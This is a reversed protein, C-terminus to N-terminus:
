FQAQAALSEANFKNPSPLNTYDPPTNYPADGWPGGSTVYENKLLDYVVDNSFVTGPLDPRDLTFLQETKWLQGHSDYEDALTADWTDEDVYFVRKAIVNREGPHLTAEVVWVRHLEWRVLNPNLFHPGHAQTTTALFLKNNNYPIYMEKKGILKWDYKDLAGNFVYFEDYNDIDDTQTAPTDYFLEPAKRVRGQGTLLQWAQTPTKLPDSSLWQIIKEGNISPPSTFEYLDREILGADSPDKAEYYPEDHTYHSGASLTMTGNSVVIVGINEVVSVGQWRAEHNWMIEAGAQSPDADPIPFPVGGYAGSFGMRAGAPDPQANLANRYINDYVWQPAAATRHTPYVTISYGYQKMMQMVGPTLRDKYQDMNSANITVIPKDSAFLDPMPQDPTWGAPPTTLGGTWAPILGDASGAREAGMPTLTTKLLAAQDATVAALAAHAGFAFICGVLTSRFKKLNRKM